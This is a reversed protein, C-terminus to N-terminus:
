YIYAYGDGRQILTFNKFTATIKGLRSAIDFRGDARVGALRGIHTGAYKGQPQVLKVLDGTQFGHVRKVRGAKGRPFGFKDTRVTQRTGHGMAKIRLPRADANLTVTAGSDGVCAADIWHAKPYELRCRNFKTQAGTGTEVPLGTKLLEAFLKNRTANVAAADHLPQKLQALIKKLVEPKHKLFVEIPRTGKRSNCPECALTLNSIRNSGHNARAHIHEVQLPVNEVGCYACQRGWKELLYERVTYGALTGQQYEVGSIEPNELQQLDFKVREIALGEIGCCQRFRQIWTMTTEVRHQLSPPLWGDSRTRNKFRATRYRTKRGRRGRRLSRRSDLNARIAHGRHELEAGFLVRGDPDVLAMGTCKSGPDIKVTVPKVVADPLAAQLIITFPVTRYVAAKGAKLLARARAPHCPTLPKKTTDLVFVSNM